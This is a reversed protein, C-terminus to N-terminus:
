YNAENLVCGLQVLKSLYSIALYITSKSINDKRRLRLIWKAAHRWYTEEMSVGCAAQDHCSIGIQESGMPGVSHAQTEPSKPSYADCMMTQM